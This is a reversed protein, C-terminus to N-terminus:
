RTRTDGSALWRDRHWDVYRTFRRSPPAALTVPEDTVPHHFTIAEAWLFLGKKSVNDTDGTYLDDGLIPHGLSALHRRIQHNRGTEPWCQVWTLWGLMHSPVHRRVVYRTRAARGEVPEEIRGSGELRGIAVALYRKQVLRQQFARGLGVNARATKACVVLGGTRIDLRHVPHPWSLADPETSEAIVTPLANTLTRRQHGSTRLGAPKVVVAIHDDEFVVPIPEPVEVARRGSEPIVYHFRDGAGVMVPDDRMVGNVVLCGKRRLKRAQTASAIQPVVQAAYYDLRTPATGDPVVHEPTVTPM